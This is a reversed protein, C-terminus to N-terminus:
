NKIVQTLLFFGLLGLMIMIAVFRLFWIKNVSGTKEMERRYSVFHYPLGMFAGSIILIIALTPRHFYFGILGIIVVIISIIYSFNILLNLIKTKL